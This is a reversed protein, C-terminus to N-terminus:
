CFTYIQERVTIHWFISVTSLLRHLCTFGAEPKFIESTLREESGDAFLDRHSLAIDCAENLEFSLIGALLAQSVM